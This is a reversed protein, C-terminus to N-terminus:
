YGLLIGRHGVVKSPGNEFWLAETNIHPTNPLVLPTSIIFSFTVAGIYELAVTSLIPITFDRSLSERKTDLSRKYSELLTMGRGILERGETTAPENRFIEFAVKANTPDTTTFVWPTNTADELLPLPIIYSPSAIGVISVGLSFLSEPHIISPNEILHPSLCVAPTTNSSDLSGLNVVIHNETASFTRRPQGRAPLKRKSSTKLQHQIETAQKHSLNGAAKSLAKALPIHGRYSAHDIATWGSLDSHEINAGHKLLVEAITSFGELSAIILPTWNKVTEPRDILPKYRLLFNVITENGSRAALYLPTQGLADCCNIDVDTGLLFTLAETSNSRVAFLLLESSATSFCPSLAANDSGYDHGYFNILIGTVELHGGLVSLQLPSRSEMDELLIASRSDGAGFQEWAKMSKLIIECVEALGHECAYHLPIRGLYDQKSLVNLERALLRDLMYSLLSISKEHGSPTAQQEKSPGRGLEVIVNRLCSEIVVVANRSIARSILVDVWSQSLCRISCEFLVHLFEIRSFDLDGRCADDILKGLELSNDSEIARFIPLSSISPNVKAIRTCFTHRVPSPEKPIEQQSRAISAIVKNLNELVRLCQAQTAFELKCLSNEVHTAICSGDTGLFGIKRLIKRFGDTNVRGYWRLKDFDASLEVFAAKYHQLEVHDLGHLDFDGTFDLYVDHYPYRYRARSTLKLLLITYKDCYFEDVSDIAGTCQRALELYV